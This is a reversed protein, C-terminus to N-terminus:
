LLVATCVISFIAAAFPKALTSTPCPPMNDVGAADCMMLFYAVKPPIMKDALWLGAPGSSSKPMLYLVAFPPGAGSFIVSAIKAFLLIILWNLIEFKASILRSVIPSVCM